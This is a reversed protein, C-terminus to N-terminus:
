QKRCLYVTVQEINAAIKCGHSATNKYLLIRRLVLTHRTANKHQGQGRPEAQTRGHQCFLLTRNPLDIKPRFVNTNRFACRDPALNIGVTGGGCLGILSGGDVPAGRRALSGGDVPAGRRGLGGSDVPEGRRALGSQPRLDGERRRAHRAGGIRRRFNGQRGGTRHAAIRSGRRCPALCFSYAAASVRWGRWHDRM